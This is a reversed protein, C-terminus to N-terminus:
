FKVETVRGNEFVVTYSPYVWSAKTGFAVEQTAKGLLARVEATTMGPHIEKRNGKGVPSGALAAAGAPASRAPADSASAPARAASPIAPTRMVLPSARSTSIGGQSTMVM